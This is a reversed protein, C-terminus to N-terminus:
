RTAPCPNPGAPKAAPANATPAPECPPPAPKSLSEMFERASPSAEIYREDLVEVPVPEDQKTAPLPADVGIVPRTWDISTGPVASKGPLQPQRPVRVLQIDSSVYPRFLLDYAGNINRYFGEPPPARTARVEQAVAPAAVLAILAAAVFRM